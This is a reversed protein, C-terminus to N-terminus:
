FFVLPFLIAWAILIAVGVLVLARKSARIEDM